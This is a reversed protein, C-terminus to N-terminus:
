TEQIASPNKVVSGGPFGMFSSYLGAIGSSPMYGSSGMVSFSVLVVINVAASNVIALDHFCGLHGGVSSHIFYSHYLTKGPSM